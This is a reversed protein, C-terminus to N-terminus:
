VLLLGLKNLSSEPERSTLQLGEPPVGLCLLEMYALCCSSQGHLSGNDADFLLDHRVNAWTYPMITVAYDMAIIIARMM